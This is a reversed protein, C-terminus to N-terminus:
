TVVQEAYSRFADAHDAAWEAFTRAPRGTVQEVTPVVTYGELPTNGHAWVFFEIVEDPYGAARWRERAQAETLEIFRVNQNIAAGIIQVMTPPTLVEPGTLTLTEGAYGGKVLVHAAVVGIDGEHVTATQRSGFPERVVGQTRISDVWDLANAMFEVPQLFTWELGSTQVAQEVSGQEGGMLVTVRQVGAAKALKMLQFGTQITAGSGGDFNILHMATVGNLAPILTEPDALDGAVVEVEIPLNAKSPYRTVARVPQGAQVLQDVVQRGVTGTAGTVLITM